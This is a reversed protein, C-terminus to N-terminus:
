IELFRPELARCVGCESGGDVLFVLVLLPWCIGTLLKESTTQLAVFWLGSSKDERVVPTVM